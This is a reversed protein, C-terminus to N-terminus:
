AFVFQDIAHVRIEYECNQCQGYQSSTAALPLGHHSTATGALHCEHHWNGLVPAYCNSNIACVVVDAAAARYPGAMLPSYNRSWNQQLMVLKCEQNNKSLQAGSVFVKETEAGKTLYRLNLQVRFGYVSHTKIM